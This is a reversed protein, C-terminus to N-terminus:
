FPAPIDNGQISRSRMLDLTSTANGNSEHQNEFVGKGAEFGTERKGSGPAQTTFFEPHNNAWSEATAVDRRFESRDTFYYAGQRDGQNPHQGIVGILTRKQNAKFHAILKAQFFLYDYYVPQDDADLDVVDAIICDAPTTIDEGTEANKSKRTVGAPNDQSHEIVRIILLRGKLDAPKPRGGESAAPENAKDFM